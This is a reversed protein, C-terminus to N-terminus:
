EGDKVNLLVGGAPPGEFDLDRVTAGHLCLVGWDQPKVLVMGPNMPRVTVGSAIGVVPMRDCTTLTGTAQNAQNYTGDLLWITDGAKAKAAASSVTLLPAALTGPNSDLGLPGVFFSFGSAVDPVAGADAADIIDPAPPGDAASGDSMGTFGPDADGFPLSTAEEDACGVFVASLAALGCVVRYRVSLMESVKFFEALMERSATQDRDACVALPGHQGTVM